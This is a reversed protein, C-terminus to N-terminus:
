HSAPTEVEHLNMGENLFGVTRKKVKKKIVFTEKWKLSKPNFFLYTM